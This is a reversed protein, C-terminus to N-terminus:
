KTNGDCVFTFPGFSCSQKC